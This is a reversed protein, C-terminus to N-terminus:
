ASLHVCNRGDTKAKYMAKDAKEILAHADLGETWEAIGISATIKGEFRESVQIRIREAVARANEPGTEPMIISFEDGGYRFCTDVNARVIGLLLNAVDKLIEDGRLHGFTDNFKKFGDLDFFVLSLSKQFRRTREIEAGLAAFLRRQNYIGTLEDTISLAELTEHLRVNETVDRAICLFGIPNKGTDFVRQLTLDIHAHSEGRQQPVHSRELSGVGPNSMYLSIERQLRASDFLTLIDRGIVEQPSLELVQRTGASATIVYGNTDTSMIVLEHASHLIAQMFENSQQVDAFLRLNDFTAAILSALGEMAELDDRGFSDLRSSEISLVGLLRSRLRIPVTLQSASGERAFGYRADTLLNNSWLVQGQRWCDEVMPSPRAEPGRPQPVQAASARLLLREQTQELYWIQVAHYDFGERLFRVAEALFAEVDELLVAQKAIDSVLSLQRRRRREQYYRDSNEIALALQDTLYDLFEDETEGLLLGDPFGVVLIGKNKEKHSLPLYALTTPVQGTFYRRELNDQQSRNGIQAVIKRREALCQQLRSQELPIVEPGVLPADADENVTFRTAIFETERHQVLTLRGVTFRTSLVRRCRRLIEEIGLSGHIESALDKAESLTLPDSRRQKRLEM